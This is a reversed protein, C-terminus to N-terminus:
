SEFMFVKLMLELYKEGESTIRYVQKGKRTRERDLWGIQTMYLIHQNITYWNMNCRRMICSKTSPGNQKVYQLISCYIDRAERKAWTVVQMM